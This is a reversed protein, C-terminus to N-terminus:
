NWLKSVKVTINNNSKRWFNRPEYIAINWCQNLKWAPICSIYIKMLITRVKKASNRECETKTTEEGQLFWLSGKLEQLKNDAGLGILLLIFQRSSEKWVYELSVFRILFEGKNINNSCIRFCLANEQDVIKRLWQDKLM